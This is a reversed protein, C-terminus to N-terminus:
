RSNFNYETTKGSVYDKEIKDLDRNYLQKVGCKSNNCCSSFSEKTQKEKDIVYVKYDTMDRETRYSIPNSPSFCTNLTLLNSTNNLKNYNYNQM